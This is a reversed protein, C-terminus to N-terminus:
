AEMDQVYLLKVYMLIGVALEDIAHEVQVSGPQEAANVEVQRFLEQLSDM